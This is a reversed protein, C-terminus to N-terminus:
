GHLQSELLLKLQNNGSATILLSTAMQQDDMVLDLKLVATDVRTSAVTKKRLLDVFIIEGAKTGIVAVQQDDLTHWWHVVCVDGKPQQLKIHTVDDTNWLQNVRAKPEMLSFAPVLYIHSLLSILSFAPVLYIHSVILLFAPVLYIHSVMLSFAPVLYIHSVIVHPSFAPVLYIDPNHTLILLWTVTPDFCM